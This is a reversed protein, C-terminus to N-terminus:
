PVCNSCFLLKRKQEFLESFACRGARTYALYRLCAHCGGSITLGEHQSQIAVACVLMLCFIPQSCWGHLSLHRLCTTCSFDSFKASVHACSHASACRAM